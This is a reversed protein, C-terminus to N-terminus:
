LHLRANETELGEFRAATLLDNDSAVFVFRGAAPIASRLVARVTLATSLQLSDYGRLTHRQNLTVAQDIIQRSVPILDYETQCHSLFLAVLTDRDVLTITGMRRAKALAATVEALTIESLIITNGSGPTLLARIWASGEETAYRKTLGSSDLFYHSM